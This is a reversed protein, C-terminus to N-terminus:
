ASYFRELLRLRQGTGSAFARSIIGVAAIQRKGRSFYFGWAPTRKPTEAKFASGPARPCRPITRALVANFMLPAAHRVAMASQHSPMVGQYLAVRRAPGREGRAM